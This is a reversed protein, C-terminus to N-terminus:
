LSGWDQVGAAHYVSIGAWVGPPTHAKYDAVSPYSADQYVGIVLSAAPVGASGTNEPWPGGTNTYAEQAFALTGANCRNIADTQQPGTWSNANGVMLHAGQEIATAYEESTEGQFILFDLGYQAVFDRAHQVSVQTQVFWAGCTGFRGKLAAVVFQTVFSAYGPDATLAPKFHPPAGLASLPHQACYVVNQIKAALPNPTPGPGPPPGPGVQRAAALAKYYATAKYNYPKGKYGDRIRKCWEDLPITAGRVKAVIEADTM